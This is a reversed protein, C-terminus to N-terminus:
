ASTDPRDLFEAVIASFRVPNEWFAFHSGGEDAPVTAFRGGPIADAVWRQSEIPIMSGLGHVVLTPRTITPILDRWDYSCEDYWLAARITNSTPSNTSLLAEFREESLDSSVMHHLVEVLVNWGDASRLRHTLDDLQALTQTGGALRAEEDNWDRDRVLTPRSDAFVLHDIGTEGFLELYAWIVAVGMSHGLLTTEGLDLALLVERLDAALRHLRYGKAPQSSRGHGRHDLAVMRHSPALEDMVPMFQEAAQSWGPLCVIPPGEGTEYYALTVDGDVAIAGQHVDFITPPDAFL